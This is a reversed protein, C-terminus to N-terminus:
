GHMFETSRILAVAEAGRPVFHCKFPKPTPILGSKWEYSPEIFAGDPGKVKEISYVRLISAVMIWTSAYAMRRGPCIRRGFGFAIEDPNRVSTNLTGDANLFREPKFVDPEPYISEDRLMAWVNPIVISGRPIAYSKYIDPQEGSYMHPLAIPTVAKWRFTEMVLATVFPLQSEDSMEPLRGPLGSSTQLPGLVSDLEAQARTQLSPNDLAALIFNEVTVMTTDTGANYMTGAADRIIDDEVGKELAISTFSPMLPITRQKVEQFPKEVVCQVTDGWERAQRQFDAGPFWEPLHKLFPLVNVLYNGPMSVESIIRLAAEAEVVHPDDKTPIDLGYAAGLIVIAAMHRLECELDDEGAALMARLFSHTAKLELPHYQASATKHMMGHVLRRRARRSSYLKSRKELLEICDDYSNLVIISQGAVCLHVVSSNFERGWSAYQEWEFKTPMDFLNGIIPWPKPGPPLPIAYRRRAYSYALTLIFAVAAGIYVVGPHSM